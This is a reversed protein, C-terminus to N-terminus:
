KAPFSLRHSNQIKGRWDKAIKAAAAFEPWRAVAVQVEKLIKASRGPKMLSAKACAEFDQLTFGDRKTRSYQRSNRECFNTKESAAACL